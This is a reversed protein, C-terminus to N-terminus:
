SPRIIELLSTYHLDLCIGVEEWLEPTGEEALDHFQCAQLFYGIVDEPTDIDFFLEYLKHLNQGFTEYDREHHSCWRSIETEVALPVKEASLFFNFYEELNRRAYDWNKAEKEVGFSELYDHHQVAELYAKCPQILSEESLGHLLSDRKILSSLFHDYKSLRDKESLNVEHITNHNRWMEKETIGLM